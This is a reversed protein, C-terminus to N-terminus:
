RKQFYVQIEDMTRGKTEPVFYYIFAITLFAVAGFFGFVASTGLEDEVSPYSKVVVSMIVYAYAVVIGQGVGRFEFPLLEGVLTWPIVLLGLSGFTIFALVIAFSVADSSRSCWGAQYASFLIATVGVGVSSSMLLTRVGLHKSLATMSVSTIFRLIGLGMLAQVAGSRLDFKSKIEGLEDGLEHNTGNIIVKADQPLGTGQIFARTDHPNGTGQIFASVNHQHDILASTNFADLNLPYGTIKEFSSSNFLQTTVIHPTTPIIMATEETSNFETSQQARKNIKQFLELSYFITPYIGVLQQLTILILVVALPRIIKKDLSLRKRTKLLKPAKPELSTWEIEFARPDTVLRALAQKAREPHRQALWSPSEPLTLSLLASLTSVGLCFVAFARWALVVGVTTTLLIGGSLAISNMSLFLPRWHKDTTEAVYVIAISTMGSALGELLRALYIMKIDVQAPSLCLTSWALINIAATALLTKQRGIRDMIFGISISGVPTGVAGLSAIWSAQEKTIDLQPHLVTSFSLNIGAHIVHSFAVLSTFGQYLIDRKSHIFETKTSPSEVDFNEIEVPDGHKPLAAYVANGSSCGM